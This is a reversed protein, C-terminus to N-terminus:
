VSSREMELHRAKPACKALAPIDISPVAFPTDAAGDLRHCATTAEVGVQSSCCVAMTQFRPPDVQLYWVNRLCSLVYRV